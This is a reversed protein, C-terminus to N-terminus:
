CPCASLEQHGWPRHGSAMPETSPDSSGWLFALMVMIARLHGRGEDSGVQQVRPNRLFLRGGPTVMGGELPRVYRIGLSDELGRGIEVLDLLYQM